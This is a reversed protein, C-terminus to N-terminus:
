HLILRGLASVVGGGVVAGLGAWMAVQVRLAAISEGQTQVRADIRKVWDELKDHRRECEEYRDCKVSLVTPPGM